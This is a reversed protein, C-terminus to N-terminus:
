TTLKKTNDQDKIEIKKVNPDVMLNELMVKLMGNMLTANQVKVTDALPFKMAFAREAIGKWIYEGEAPSMKGSIVLESGKMEIDVDHKSFGALAMEIMYHNDDVKSINYPPWSPMKMGRGIRDLENFLSDFGIWNPLMRM